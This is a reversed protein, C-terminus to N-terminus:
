ASKRWPADEWGTAQSSPNRPLEEFAVDLERVDWVKRTGIKRCDPMTGDTVLEDFKTASVGIYSAAQERSLGRRPSPPIAPSYPRASM